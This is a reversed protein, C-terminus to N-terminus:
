DEYDEDGTHHADGGRHHKGPNELAFGHVVLRNEDDLAEGGAHNEGGGEDVDERVGEGGEGVAVDGGVVGPLVEREGAEDGHDAGDEGEEDVEGGGGMNVAVLGTVVGWNPGLFFQGSVGLFQGLEPNFRRYQRHTARVFLTFLQHLQLLSQHRLYQLNSDYEVRDDYANGHTHRLILAGDSREDSGEGEM